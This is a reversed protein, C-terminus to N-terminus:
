KRKGGLKDVPTIVKEGTESTCLIYDIAVIPNGNKDTKAYLANKTIRCLTQCLLNGKDDVTHKCATNKEPDCEFMKFFFDMSLNDDDRSKCVKLKKEKSEM